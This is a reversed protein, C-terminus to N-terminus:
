CFFGEWECGFGQPTEQWVQFYLNEPILTALGSSGESNFFKFIFPQVEIDFKFFAAYEKQAALIEIVKFRNVVLRSAYEWATVKANMTVPIIPINNIYGATSINQFWFYHYRM